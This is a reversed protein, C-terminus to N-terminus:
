TPGIIIIIFQVYIRGRRALLFRGDLGFGLPLPWGILARRPDRALPHATSPEPLLRTRRTPCLWPGDTGRVYFQCPVSRVSGDFQCASSVYFKCLVSMSSTYFQCLVSM